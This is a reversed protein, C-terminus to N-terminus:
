ILQGGESTFVCVAFRATFNLLEIINQKIYKTQMYSALSVTWM